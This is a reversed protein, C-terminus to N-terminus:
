ASSGATKRARRSRSATSGRKRTGSTRAGSESRSGASSRIDAPRTAGGVADGTRSSTTSSSKIADTWEGIQDSLSDIQHSIEKRKSWLFLGAATAGAAAAATAIPRELAMGMVGWDSRDKQTRSNSNPM